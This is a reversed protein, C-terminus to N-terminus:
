YHFFFVYLAWFFKITTSRDNTSNRVMRRNSAKPIANAKKKRNNLTKQQTASRKNLEIASNIPAM